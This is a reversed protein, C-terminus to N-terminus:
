RIILFVQVAALAVPALYFFFWISLQRVRFPMLPMARVRDIEQWLLHQTLKGETEEINIQDLRGYLESLREERARRLRRRLMMTPVAVYYPNLFIFILLLPSVWPAQSLPLVIFLGTIALACITILVFVSQMLHRFPLWGYYGDINEARAHCQLDRRVSVWFQTFRVGVDNIILVYYLGFAILILYGLTGIPNTNISAWWGDYAAPAWRDLSVQESPKFGHFVGGLNQALIVLMALIFALAIHRRQNRMSEMADNLKSYRQEADATEVTLAGRTTLRRAFQEIIHWQWHTACLLPGLLAIILLTATDRMLPFHEDFTTPEGLAARLDAEVRSFGEEHLLTGTLFTVTALFLLAIPSALLLWSKPKDWLWGIIPDCGSTNLLESLSRRPPTDDVSEKPAHYAERINM